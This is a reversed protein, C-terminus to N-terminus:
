LAENVIGEFRKLERLESPTMSWEADVSSKHDLAFHKEIIKAGRSLAMKAVDLGISHDSLGQFEDPFVYQNFRFHRPEAPYNAICYLHIAKSDSPVEGRNSSTGSILFEKGTSVVGRIVEQFHNRCTAIKYRKVGIDECWRVKEIDFVSFFVEIGISKGYSFLDRADEYSVETEQYEGYLKKSDYLQAKALDAGNEKALRVLEKAEGLNSFNQSIEAIIM